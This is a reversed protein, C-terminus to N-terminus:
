VEMAPDPCAPKTGPPHLSLTPNLSSALALTRHPLGSWLTFTVFGLRPASFSISLLSSSVSRSTSDPVYINQDRKDKISATLEVVSKYVISDFASLDDVAGWVVVNISDHTSDALLLNFV